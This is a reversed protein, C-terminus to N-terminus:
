IWASERRRRWGGRSQSQGDPRVRSEASSMSARAQAGSRSRALSSAAKAGNPIVALEKNTEEITKTMEYRGEVIRRGRGSTAVLPSRLRPRLDRRCDVQVHSPGQSRGPGLEHGRHEVFQFPRSAPVPQLRDALGPPHGVGDDDLPEALMRGAPAASVAGDLVDGM